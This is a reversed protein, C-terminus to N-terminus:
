GPIDAEAEEFEDANFAAAVQAVLEEWRRVWRRVQKEDLEPRDIREAIDATIQDWTSGNLRAARARYGMELGYQRVTPSLKRRAKRHAAIAAELLDRETADLPARIVIGGRTSVEITPRKTDSM